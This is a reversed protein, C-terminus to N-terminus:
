KFMGKIQGWTSSKTTPAGQIPHDEWRVVKWTGGTQAFWLRAEDGQVIYYLPDSTTHHHTYVTLYINSLVIKTWGEMDNPIEPGIDFSLSVTDAVYGEVNATTKSFLHFASLLDDARGWTAPNNDPGGVDQQAFVYTYEDATVSTYANYNLKQWSKQLNLVVNHPSTAPLYESQAPPVYPKSAKDSCGIALTAAAIVLMAAVAFFRNAPSAFAAAMARM